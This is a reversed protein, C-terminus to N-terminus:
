AFMSKGFSNISVYETTCSISASFPTSLSWCACAVVSWQSDGGQQQREQHLAHTVELFCARDKSNRECQQERHQDRRLILQRSLLTKVCFAV